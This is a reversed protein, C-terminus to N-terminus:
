LYVEYDPPTVLVAGTSSRVYVRCEACVICHVYEKMGGGMGHLFGRGFRRLFTLGSFDHRPFLPTEPILSVLKAGTLDAGSAIVVGNGKTAEWRYRNQLDM